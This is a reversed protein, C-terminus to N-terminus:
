AAVDETQSVNRLGKTLEYLTHGYCMIKKDM